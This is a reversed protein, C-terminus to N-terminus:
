TADKKNLQVHRVHRNKASLQHSQLLDEFIFRFPTYYPKM